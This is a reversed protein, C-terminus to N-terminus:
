VNMLGASSPKIVSVLYKGGVFMRTQEDVQQDGGLNQTTLLLRRFCLRLMSGMLGRPKPTFPFTVYAPSCIDGM